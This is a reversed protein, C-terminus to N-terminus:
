VEARARHAAKSMAARLRRIVRDARLEDAWFRVVTYGGQRLMRVQRRDRKRNRLLREQWYPTLRALERTDRLHWFPSDVFVAVDDDVLADIQIGLRREHATFRIGAGDLMAFM